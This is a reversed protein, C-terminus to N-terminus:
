IIRSAPLGPIYGGQGLWVVMPKSQSRIEDRLMQDYRMRGIKSLMASDQFRPDYYESTRSPEDVEPIGFINFSYNKNYSQFFHDLLKVKEPFGFLLLELAKLHVKESYIFRDHKQLSQEKRHENFDM